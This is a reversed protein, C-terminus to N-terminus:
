RAIGRVEPDAGPSLRELEDNSLDDRIGDLRVVSLTLAGCASELGEM